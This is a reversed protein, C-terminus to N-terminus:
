RAGTGPQPTAPAKLGALELFGTSPHSPMQSVGNGSANVVRGGRLFIKLTSSKGDGAWTREVRELQPHNKFWRIEIFSGDKGMSTAVESNEAAPSRMPPPAEGGADVMARKKPRAANAALGPQNDMPTMADVSVTQSTTEPSATNVNAANPSSNGTSDENKQTSKSSSCGSSWAILTLVILLGFLKM